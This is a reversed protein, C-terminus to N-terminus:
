RPTDGAALAAQGYAVAIEVAAILRVYAAAPLREDWLVEVLADLPPGLPAVCQAAVLMRYREVNSVALADALADVTERSLGRDGSELRSIFAQSLGAREALKKMPLDRRARLERLMPGFAPADASRSAGRQWGAPPSANTTPEM